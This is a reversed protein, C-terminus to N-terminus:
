KVIIGIGIHNKTIINNYYFLFFMTVDMKVNPIQFTDRGRPVTHLSTLQPLSSETGKIGLGLGSLLLYCRKADRTIVCGTSQVVMM